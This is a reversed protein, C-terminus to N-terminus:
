RSVRTITELLRRGAPSREAGPRTVVFFRRGTLGALRQPRLGSGAFAELASTATVAVTRDDGAMLRQIAASDSTQHTIRPRFGATQCCNELHSRCSECGVIWQAEALDALKLGSQHALPHNAPLLVVLDDGGVLRGTLGAPLTITAEDAATDDLSLAQPPVFDFVLALDLESSRLLPLAQDPEVETLLVETKVNHTRLEELVAPVLSTLSSTFCGLRVMDHNRRELAALDDQAAELHREIADAHHVLITGAENLEVGSRHRNLLPMQVTRELAALHQSVAPPTWGLARAAASISGTQAVIRLILVRKPDLAPLVSM